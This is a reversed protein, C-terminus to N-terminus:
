FRVSAVFSSSCAFCALAASATVAALRLGAVGGALIGAGAGTTGWGAVLTATTGTTAAVADVLAVRKVLASPIANMQSGDILPLPAQNPVM